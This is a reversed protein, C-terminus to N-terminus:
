QRRAAAAAKVRPWLNVTDNRDWDMSAAYFQARLGALRERIAPPAPVARPAAPNDTRPPIGSWIGLQPARLVRM